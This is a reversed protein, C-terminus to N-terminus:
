LLEYKPNVNNRFDVSVRVEKDLIKFVLLKSYKSTKIVDIRKVMTVDVDECRLSEDKIRIQNFIDHLINNEKQYQTKIKKLEAIEDKLQDTTFVEQLVKIKKEKEAIQDFINDAYESQDNAKDCLAKLENELEERHTDFGIMKKVEKLAIDTCADAYKFHLTTHGGRCGWTYNGDVGHRSMMGGCINCFLKTKLPSTNASKKFIRRNSKLLEQVENFLETDIIQPTTVYGEIVKSYRRGIYVESKLIKYVMPRSISFLNSITELTSGSKYMTFMEKIKESDNNIVLLGNQMDYGIPAQNTYTRQGSLIKQRRGSKTREKISTREIEAMASGFSLMMITSPSMAGNDDLSKFNEKLSIVSINRKALNEVTSIVSSMKRGLRSLEWVLIVSIDDLQIMKQFEPRDDIAGSMKEEFVYVVDLNNREAYSLLETKQRQYDQIQTSVRLYLATKKMNYTTKQNDPQLTLLFIQFVLM